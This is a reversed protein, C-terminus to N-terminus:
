QVLRVENIDEAGPWRNCSNMSTLVVQQGSAYALMLMAFQRKGAESTEDRIIWYNATGCGTGSASGNLQVWILGDSARQILYNVTGQWYRDAQASGSLAMLLLLATVKWKKM